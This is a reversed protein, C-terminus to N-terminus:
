SHDESGYIAERDNCLAGHIRGSIESPELWLQRAGGELDVWRARALVEVRDGVLLAVERIRCQPLAAPTPPANADLPEVVCPREASGDDVLCVSAAASATADPKFLWEHATGGAAISGTSSQFHLRDLTSDFVIAPSDALPAHGATCREGAIDNAVAVQGRIRVLQGDVANAIAVVEASRLARLAQGRAGRRYRVFGVVSTAALAGLLAGLVIIVEM